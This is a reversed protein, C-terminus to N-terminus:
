VQGFSRCDPPLNPPEPKKEAPYSKARRRTAREATVARGRGALDPRSKAPRRREGRTARQVGGIFSGAHETSTRVTSEAAAHAGSTCTARRCVVGDHTTSESSTDRDGSAAKADSMGDSRETVQEAPRRREADRLNTTRHTRTTM